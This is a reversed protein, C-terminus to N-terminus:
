ENGSNWFRPFKQYICIQKLCSTETVGAQGYASTDIM